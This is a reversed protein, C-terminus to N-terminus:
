TYEKLEKSRHLGDCQATVVPLRLLSVWALVLLLGLLSGVLLRSWRLLCRTDPHPPM